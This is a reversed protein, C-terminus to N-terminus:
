IFLCAVIAYATNLEAIIINASTCTKRKM